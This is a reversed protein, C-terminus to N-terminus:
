PPNPYFPGNTEGSTVLEGELVGMCSNVKRTLQADPPAIYSSDSACCCSIFLLEGLQAIATGALYTMPPSRICAGVHTPLHILASTSLVNM